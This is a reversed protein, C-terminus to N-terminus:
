NVNNIAQAHEVTGIQGSDIIEKVLNTHLTSRLPFSVVVKGQYKSYADRLRILDEVTTAVPKELFLPTRTPLVKLAFHTHLSCRTGVFIGDYTDGALMQDIDDYFSIGATDIGQAMMGLKIDHHKLDTIAVVKCDPDQENMIQLLGKIRFGYGVVAVKIM